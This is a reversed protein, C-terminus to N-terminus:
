FFSNIYDQCIFFGLYLSWLDFLIYFHFWHFFPGSTAMTYHFSFVVNRLLLLICQGAVCVYVCPVVRMKGFDFFPVNKPSMILPVLADPKLYYEVQRLYADRYFVSRVLVIAYIYALDGFRSENKRFSRKAMGYIYAYM